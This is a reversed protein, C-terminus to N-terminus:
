FAFQSSLYTEILFHSQIGFSFRIVKSLCFSLGEEWGEQDKEFPCNQCYGYNSCPVHCCMATKQIEISQQGTQNVTDSKEVQCGCWVEEPLSATDCHTTLCQIISKLKRVLNEVSCLFIAYRYALTIQPCITCKGEESGSEGEFLSPTQSRFVM